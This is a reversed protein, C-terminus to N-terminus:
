VIKIIPLCLLCIQVAKEGKTYSEPSFFLKPEKSSTILM